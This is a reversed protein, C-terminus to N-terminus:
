MPRRRLWGRIALEIARVRELPIPPMQSARAGVITARRPSFGRREATAVLELLDHV